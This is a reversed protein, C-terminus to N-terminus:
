YGWDQWDEFDADTLNLNLQISSAILRSGGMGARREAQALLDSYNRFLADNYDRQDQGEASVAKAYFARIKRLAYVITTDLDGDAQTHMRDLTDASVIFDADTDGIMDRIFRVQNDTLAAM